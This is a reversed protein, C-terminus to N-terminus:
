EKSIKQKKNRKPIHINDCSFAEFLLEESISKKKAQESTNITHISANTILVCILRTVHIKKKKTKSQAERLEVLIHYNSDRM